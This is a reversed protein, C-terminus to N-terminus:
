LRINIGAKINSINRDWFRTVEYETFIGIRKWLRMGINLGYNYDLYKVSEGRQELLYAYSFDSDGFMHKHLGPYVSVWSHLWFDKRYYYYDAGVVMSLTGITGIKSLETSNYRDVINGYVNKRFDLDSDAVREGDENSWWWDYNDLEGDNNSDIGYYNDQYGYEYALDWWPLDSLYSEIPSFGYAQHTRLVAGTSFALRKSVPVRFRLDISKYDLDRKENLLSEGKISWWKSLYRILFKRNNYSRNQDRGRDIQFIYELGGVPSYNSNLSSQQEQGTYFESQMKEYGLRSVKRIGLTLNFNNEWDPTIDQVEGGQTVFYETPADFGNESQYSGYVTSYKFLYNYLKNKKQAMANVSILLTLVILLRKM